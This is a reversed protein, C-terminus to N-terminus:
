LHYHIDEWQWSGLDTGIGAEEEPAGPQKATKYCLEQLTMVKAIIRKIKQM